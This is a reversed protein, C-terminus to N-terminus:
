LLLRRDERLEGRKVKTSRCVRPLASVRLVLLWAEGFFHPYSRFLLVQRIRLRVWAVSRKPSTKRTNDFPSAFNSEWIL